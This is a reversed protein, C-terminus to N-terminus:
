SPVDFKMSIPSKFLLVDVTPAPFPLKNLTSDQMSSNLAQFGHAGTLANQSGLSLQRAASLM